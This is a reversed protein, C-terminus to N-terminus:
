QFRQDPITQKRGYCIDELYSTDNRLDLEYETLEIHGDSEHHFRACVLKGFSVSADGTFVVSSFRQEELCTPLTLADNLDDLAECANVFSPREGEIEALRQMFTAYPRGDWMAEHACGERMLKIARQRVAPNRCKEAVLFATPLVGPELAFARKPQSDSGRPASNMYIEALEVAKRFMEIHDDYATEHTNRCNAVLISLQIHEIQMAIISRESEKHLEMFGHLATGFDSLKQKLVHKRSSIDEHKMGLDVSKCFTALYCERYASDNCVYSPYSVAAEAIALLDGRLRFVASGLLSLYSKADDVSEFQPPLRSSGDITARDEPLELRPYRQGFM